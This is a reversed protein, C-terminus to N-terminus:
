YAPWIYTGKNFLMTFLAIEVELEGSTDSVMCLRLNYSVISYIDAEMSCSSGSWNKFCKHKPPPQKKINVLQVCLAIGIFLSKKTAAGFIVAVGSKANHYHKHARKSWGGDVVVAIAPVESVLTNNPIAIQKEEQGTSLIQEMVPSKLYTGLTCEMETFCASTFSPVSVCALQEEM